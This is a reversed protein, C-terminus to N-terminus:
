CPKELHSSVLLVQLFSAHVTIHPYSQALLKSVFVSGETGGKRAMQWFQEYVFCYFIHNNHFGLILVSVLPNKDNLDIM